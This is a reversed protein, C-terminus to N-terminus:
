VKTQMDEMLFIVSCIKVNKWKGSKTANCKLLACVENREQAFEYFSFSNIWKELWCSKPPYIFNFAYMCFFNKGPYNTEPM